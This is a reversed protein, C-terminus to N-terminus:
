MHKVGIVEKSLFFQLIEVYFRKKFKERVPIHQELEDHCERCIRIIPSGKYYRKPYIHHKTLHKMELCKPCMSYKASM